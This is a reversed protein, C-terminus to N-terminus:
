NLICIRRVAYVLSVAYKKYVSKNFVGCWKSVEKGQDLTTIPVGECKEFKKIYM